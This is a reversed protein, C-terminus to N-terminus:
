KPELYEIEDWAFGGDGPDICTTLNDMLLYRHGGDGHVAYSWFGRDYKLTGTVPNEEDTERFDYLTVRDGQKLSVGYRDRVITDKDDNAM